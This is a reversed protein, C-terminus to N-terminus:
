IKYLEDLKKKIEEYSKDKSKYIELAFSLGAYLGATFAKGNHRTLNCKANLYKLIEEIKAPYEGVFDYKM